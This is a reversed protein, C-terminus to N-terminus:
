GASNTFGICIEAVTDGEASEAQEAFETIVEALRAKLEELQQSSASFTQNMFLSKRSASQTPFRKRTREIAQFYDVKFVEASKLEAMDLSATLPLYRSTELNESILNANKMADLIPRLQAARLNTRSRIEDLTAGKDESGLAAYVTPFDKQLFIKVATSDARLSKQSKQLSMKKRCRRLQEVYFDRDKDGRRFSEEDCAILCELFERWSATLKLGSHVREVSDRTLRKRGAVVDGMFSKSAFGAKTAFEQYSLPRPKEWGGQKNFFLRLFGRYDNSALLQREFTKDWMSMRGGKFYQRIAFDTGAVWALLLM